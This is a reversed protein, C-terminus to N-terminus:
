TGRQKIAEIGDAAAAGGLPVFVSTAALAGATMLARITQQM